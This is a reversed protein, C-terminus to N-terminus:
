PNHNIRGVSWGAGDFALDTVSLNDITHGMAQYATSGTARQIQTMIVGIHAVAIIDRGPHQCMLDDVITAVRTSVTNWSEGGPPALDGPNEWFPRSESEDIQSYHLGDWAGFNFERLAPTPALRTQTTAIADATASARILDSSILLANAPLYAILRALQATDSLDAPVDRWGVM